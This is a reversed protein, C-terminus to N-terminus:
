DSAGSYLFLRRYFDLTRGLNFLVPHFFISKKIWYSYSLETNRTYHKVLIADRVQDLLKNPHSEM